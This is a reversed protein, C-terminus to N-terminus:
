KKPVCHIFNTILIIYLLPIMQKRLLQRRLARQRCVKLPRIIAILREVSFSVVLLPELNSTFQMIFYFLEHTGSCLWRHEVEDNFHRLIIFYFISYALLYVLDAIALAALYVASSTKRRRLWVIASLINGPIGVALCAYLIIYDTMMVADSVRYGYREKCTSQNHFSTANDEDSFQSVNM